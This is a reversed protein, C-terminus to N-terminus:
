LLDVPSKVAMGGKEIVHTYIMTTQLSQHGLLEQVTRIDYGRELLHTAFSHRLTHCSIRKQFRCIRSAELVAKQITSRSVHYRGAVSSKSDRALKSSPFLFFWKFDSTVRGFKRHLAYPLAINGYGKEVDRQYIRKVRKIHHKLADALSAPLLSYRDKNGKASRILIQSYEFDLDQIRLTICESLRLGAGYLLAVPLYVKRDVVEMLQKVEETSLVVPIRKPKKSWQINDFNELQIKLVQKYLFVLACLAQNQTSPSVHKKNVLYSLYEQIHNETLNAPHNKKHFLIYSRIWKVYARETSRSYGRTRIANRVSQLLKPPSM